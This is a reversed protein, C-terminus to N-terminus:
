RYIVNMLEDISIELLFVVSKTKVHIHLPIIFTARPARSRSARCHEAELPSKIIVSAWDTPLVVTQITSTLEVQSHATRFISYIIAITLIISFELLKCHACFELLAGFAFKPNLSVLTTARHSASAAMLKTIFASTTVTRM